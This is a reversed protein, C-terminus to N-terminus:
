HKKYKTCIMAILQSICLSCVVFAHQHMSKKNTWFFSFFFYEQLQAFHRRLGELLHLTIYRLYQQLSFTNSHQIHTTYLQSRVEELHLVSQPCGIFAYMLSIQFIPGIHCVFYAEAQFNPLPLSNEATCHLSNGRQADTLASKQISSPQLM